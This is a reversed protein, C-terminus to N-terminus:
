TKDYFRHNYIHFPSSFTIEWTSTSNGINNETCNKVGDVATPLQAVSTKNQGSVSYTVNQKLAINQ